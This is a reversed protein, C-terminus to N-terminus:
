IVISVEAVTNRCMNDFILSFNDMQVCLTHRWFVNPSINLDVEGDTNEEANEEIFEEFTSILSKLVALIDYVENVSSGLREMMLTYRIDSVMPM